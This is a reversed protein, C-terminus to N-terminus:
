DRTALDLVAHVAGIPEIELGITASWDAPNDLSRNV